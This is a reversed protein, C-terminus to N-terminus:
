FNILVPVSNQGRKQQNVEVGIGIEEDTIKNLLTSAKASSYDYIRSFLQLTNNTTTNEKSSYRQFYHIKSM